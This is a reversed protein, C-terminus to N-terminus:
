LKVGLENLLTLAAELKKQPLKALLQLDILPIAEGDEGVGGDVSAPQKRDFYPAAAKAADVRVYQPNRPDLAVAKLYKAPSDPLEDIVDSLNSRDLNRLALLSHAVGRENCPVNLDNLFVGPTDTPRLTPARKTKADAAKEAAGQPRKTAM